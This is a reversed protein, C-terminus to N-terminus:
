EVVTFIERRGGTELLPAFKQYWASFEEAGKPDSMAGEWAALNPYTTEWVFTYYSGTLDTLARGQPMGYKKMLATVEQFLTKAEKAKGVKLQFVDRVVIMM